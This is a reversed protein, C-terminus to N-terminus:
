EAIYAAVIKGYYETHYIDAGEAGLCWPGAAISFHLGPFRSILPVRREIDGPECGIDMGELHPLGDLDIGKALMSELHFHTDFLAMAGMKAPRM